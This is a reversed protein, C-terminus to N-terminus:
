RRLPLTPAATGFLRCVASMKQAATRITQAADLLSVRELMAATKRVRTAGFIRM